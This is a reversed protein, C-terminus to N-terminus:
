LPRAAHWARGHNFGVVIMKKSGAEKILVADQKGVTWTQGDRHYNHEPIGGGTKEKEAM